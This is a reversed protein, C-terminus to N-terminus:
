FRLALGADAVYGWSRATRWPRRGVSLMRRRGCHFLDRPLAFMKLRMRTFDTSKNRLLSGLLDNGAEACSRREGIITRILPEAAQGRPEVPFCNLGCNQNKDSYSEATPRRALYGRPNKASEDPKRVPKVVM